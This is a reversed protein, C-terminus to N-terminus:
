VAHVANIGRRHLAAILQLDDKEAGAVAACTAIAVVTPTQEWAVTRGMRKREIGETM